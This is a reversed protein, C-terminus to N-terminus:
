LDDDNRSMWEMYNDVMDACNMNPIRLDVMLGSMEQSYLPSFDLVLPQLIDGFLKRKYKFKSITQTVPQPSQVREPEKEFQGIIPWKSVFSFGGKFFRREYNECKERGPMDIFIRHILASHLGFMEHGDYPPIYKGLKKMLKTRYEKFPANPTLGEFKFDRGDKSEIVFWPKGDKEHITCLTWIQTEPHSISNAVVALQYNIPYIFEATHHGTIEGPDILVMMDNIKLPLRQRLDNPIIQTYHNRHKEQFLTKVRSSLKIESCNGACAVTLIPSVSYNRFGHFAIAALFELDEAPFDHYKHVSERIQQFLQVRQPIKSATYKPIKEALLPLITRRDEIPAACFRLIYKVYRDISEPNQKQLDISDAFEDITPFGYSMLATVIKTHDAQTFIRPKRLTIITPKSAIEREFIILERIIQRVRDILQDSFEPYFDNSIHMLGQKRAHYLLERDQQDTWTDSLPPSTKGELNIVELNPCEAPVIKQLFAILEIDELLMQPNISEKIKSIAPINMRNLDQTTFGALFKRINDYVFKEQEANRSESKADESKSHENKTNESIKPLIHKLLLAVVKTVEQPSRQFDNFLDWNGIGFSDLIEAVQILKETTWFQSPPLPKPPQLKQPTEHPNILDWYDDPLTEIEDPFLNMDSFNIIPSEKLLVSAWSTGRAAENNDFGIKASNKILDMLLAPDANKPNEINTLTMSREQWLYQFLLQEYSNNTILQFIKPPYTEVRSWWQVIGNSDNLPTWDIDFAIISDANMSELVTSMTNCPIILVNFGISNNFQQVLKTVQKTRASSDFKLHQIQHDLLSHHILNVTKMTSCVIAVRRNESKQQNLLKGLMIIKGSTSNEHNHDKFAPVLSPHTGANRLDVSIKCMEEVTMDERCKQYLQLYLKQQHQTMPCALLREHYCFNNSAEENTIRLVSPEIVEHFLEITPSQGEPLDPCRIVQQVASLDTISMANFDASLIISHRYSLKNLQPVMSSLPAKIVSFDDIIISNWTIKPLLQADRIFQERCIIMVDFSVPTSLPYVHAAETSSKKESKFVYIEESTTWEILADLWRPQFPLSTIILSPPLHPVRLRMYEFYTSITSFKLWNTEDVFVSSEGKLYKEEFKLVANKQLDDLIIGQKSETPFEVRDLKKPPYKFNITSQIDLPEFDNLPNHEADNATRRSPNRRRPIEKSSDSKKSSESRKKSLPPRGPGRKKAPPDKDSSTDLKQRQHRTKM